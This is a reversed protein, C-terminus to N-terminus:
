LAPDGVFDDFPPRVGRHAEDEFESQLDSAEIGTKESLAALIARRAERESEIRRRHAAPFDGYEAKEADDLEAYEADMRVLDEQDRSLGRISSVYWSRAHAARDFSLPIPTTGGGFSVNEPFITLESGDATAPGTITGESQVLPPVETAQESLAREIEAKKETVTPLSSPATKATAGVPASPYCVTCARHGASAVIQSEDWGSVEPVPLLGTRKGRKHLSTCETDSHVHGGTSTAMFARPWPRRSFEEEGLHAKESAIREREAAADAANLMRDALDRDITGADARARLEDIARSQPVGLMRSARQAIVIREQEARQSAIGADRIMMDVKPPSWTSLDSSQSVEVIVDSESRRITGFQGGNGAEGTDRKRKIASM